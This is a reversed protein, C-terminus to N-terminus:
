EPLKVQSPLRGRWLALARGAHSLFTYNVEIERPSMGEITRYLWQGARVLTERPPHVEAPALSWWELVHGTALIRNSLPNEPADPNVAATGAWSRDWFGDAKQSRVFQQTVGALYAVIRQRTGESLIRTQEDVRLLMVLAHMRHNGLCVGQPLAQRMIRDAIRDFNVLQKEDTFWSNRTPLYLAYALASWEYEVQNLSFDRLSQRLLALVRTEGNATIVPFDLPTGSEALCALTHDVHSATADGEQLRARVGAPGVTLFPSTKSGWAEAFRRHDLLLERLELGSLCEKDAFTAETGWLRLAHDVHNIKPNAGRLRPRLKSLAQPLQEDTIVDPYDFRPLVQLPENRPIPLLLASEMQRSRYAAWGGSSGAILLQVVLFVVVGWSLGGASPTENGTAEAATEIQPNEITPDM